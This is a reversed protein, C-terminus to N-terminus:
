KGTKFNLQIKNFGIFINWVLYIRNFKRKADSIQANLQSNNLLKISTYKCHPGIFM